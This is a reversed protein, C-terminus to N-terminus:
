TSMNKDVSLKINLMGEELKSLKMMVAAMDGDTLKVSPMKDPDVSVFQPLQNILKAKDLKTLATYIDDVETAPRNASDKRRRTMKPIKDM